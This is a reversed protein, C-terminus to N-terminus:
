LCLGSSFPSDMRQKWISGVAKVQSFKLLQGAGQALGWAVSGESPVLGKM